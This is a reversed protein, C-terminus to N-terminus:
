EVSAVCITSDPPATMPSAVLRPVTSAGATMTVPPIQVACRAAVAPRCTGTMGTANDCHSVSGTSGSIPVVSRQKSNPARWRGFPCILMLAPIFV